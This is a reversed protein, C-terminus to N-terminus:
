ALKRMRAEIGDLAKECFERPPPQFAAYESGEDLELGSDVAEDLFVVGLRFWEGPCGIWIPDDFADLTPFM